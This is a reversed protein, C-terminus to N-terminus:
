RGRTSSKQPANGTATGTSQQPSFRFIAKKVQMKVRYTM